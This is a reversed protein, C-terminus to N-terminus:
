IEIWQSTLAPFCAKTNLSHSSLSFDTGRFTRLRSSNQCRLPHNCSVPVFESRYPTMVHSRYSLLLDNCSVPIFESRSNLIISTKCIDTQLNAEQFTPCCPNRPTSWQVNSVFVVSLFKM